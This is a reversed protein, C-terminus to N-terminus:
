TWIKQISNYISFIYENYIIMIIPWCNEGRTVYDSPYDKKKM